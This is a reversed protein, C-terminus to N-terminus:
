FNFSVGGLLYFGNKFGSEIRLELPETIRLKVGFPLHFVPIIVDDKGSKRKEKDGEKNVLEVSYSFYSAGIGLGLFPHIPFSPFIDFYSTFTLSHSNSSMTGTFSGSGLEREWVGEGKLTNREYSLVSSYGGKIGKKGYYRFELGYVNGEIYPKKVISYPINDITIIDIRMTDILQKPIGFWGAKLSFGFRAESFLLSQFFLLFIFIRKM